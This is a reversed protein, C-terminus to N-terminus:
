CKLKIKNRCIKAFKKHLFPRANECIIKSSVLVNKKLRPKEEYTKPLILMFLDAKKSGSALGVAMM